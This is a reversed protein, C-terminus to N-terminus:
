PHPTAPASRPDEAFSIESTKIVTGYLVKANHANQRHWLGQPCVFISGKRLTREVPGDDTMVTIDVEGDIAYLLEDADPHREWPTQGTYHMAGLQWEGFSGLPAVAANADAGTTEETINLEPVKKLAAEISRAALRMKPARSANAKPRRAVRPQKHSGVTGETPTVFLQTVHPRPIQRHWLGTPCVFVSGARVSSRVPGDGTLTIVDMAGEVVLLLEEGGPHREWHSMTSGAGIGITCHSLRALFKMSLNHPMDKAAARLDCPVLQPQEAIEKLRREIDAHTLLVKGGVEAEADAVGSLLEDKLRARFDANPLDRLNAAIRLLAALRPDLRPTPADPNAMHAELAEDLQESESRKAM